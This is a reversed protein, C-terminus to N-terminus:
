IIMIMLFRSCCLILPYTAFATLFLLYLMIVVPQNWNEEVKEILVEVKQIQMDLSLNMKAICTFICSILSFWIADTVTHQICCQGIEVLVDFTLEDIYQLQNLLELICNIKNIKYYHKILPLISSVPLITYLSPLPNTYQLIIDLIVTSITNRTESSCKKLSESLTSLIISQEEKSKEIFSFLLFSYSLLCFQVKKLFDVFVALNENTQIERWNQLIVLIFSTELLDTQNLYWQM